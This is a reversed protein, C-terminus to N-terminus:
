SQSDDGLVSDKSFVFSVLLLAVTAYFLGIFFMEWPRREARKPNMLM